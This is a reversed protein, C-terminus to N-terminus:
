PKEGHGMVTLQASHTLVILFGRERSIVTESLCGQRLSFRVCLPCGEYRVAVDRAASVWRHSVRPSVFVLRLEGWGGGSLLSGKCRAFRDLDLM